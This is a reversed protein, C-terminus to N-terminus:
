EIIQWKSEMIEDAVDCINGAGLTIVMDGRRMITKLFDFMNNVDKCYTVNENGAEVASDRILEGTVGKIPKERAPYIDTICILDADGFSQGFEKYFEKTRTFTHPQFVCIIRRDWGIKAARLAERVESPHHAYDDVILVGNKEGRIDFRRYVGQFESLASKIIEFDIGMARSVAVAALANKINYSGPVNISLEGLTQENEYLTFTSMNGNFIISGARIDSGEALGFTMVKKNIEPIIECAGADDAGVITIGYFPVKNAFCAFSNKLDEYDDYIDLHEPEINNVVAITPSLQLFSRDYEDAEVVTWDGNGLRANTGGFDKLRGGVIVTPDIGAKILILGLMSTTTTKGHTGSVALCYNLRSVEALMEARRILPISRSMAEKTEVNEAPDVASSYVVCEADTVNEAKHGIFIKAGKQGLNETIGSSNLDSGTVDFGRNLLIEAIGSM